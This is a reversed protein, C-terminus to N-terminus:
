ATVTAQVPHVGFGVHKVPLSWPVAARQAASVCRSQSSGMSVTLPLLSLRRSLCVAYNQQVKLLSIGPDVSILLQGAKGPKKSEPTASPLSAGPQWASVGPQVHGRDDSM